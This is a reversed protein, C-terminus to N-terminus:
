VILFILWALVLVVLGIGLWIWVSGARRVEPLAPAQETGPIRTPQVAPAPASKDQWSPDIPAGTDM